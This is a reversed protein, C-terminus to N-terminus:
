PESNRRDDNNKDSEPQSDTRACIDRTYRATPYHETYAQEEEKRAREDRELIGSVTGDDRAGSIRDERREGANHAARDDHADDHESNKQATTQLTVREGADIAPPHIKAPRRARADGDARSRRHSAQPREAQRQRHHGPLHCRREDHVEERVYWDGRGGDDRRGRYDKRGDERAYFWLGSPSCRGSICAFMSSARPLASARKEGKRAMRGM